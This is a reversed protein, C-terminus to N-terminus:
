NKALREVEILDAGFEHGVVRTRYTPSTFELDVWEEDSAHYVAFLHPGPQALVDQFGEVPLASSRQMNRATLSSVDRQRLQLEKDRDYVMVMSSKMEPTAYFYGVLFKATDQIYLRHDPGAALVARLTPTLVVDARLVKSNERAAHIEGMVHLGGLMAVVV